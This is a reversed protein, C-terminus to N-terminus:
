YIAIKTVIAIDHSETPRPAVFRGFAAGAKRTGLITLLVIVFTSRWPYENGAEELAAVLFLTAVLLM